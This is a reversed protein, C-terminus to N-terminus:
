MGIELMQLAKAAKGRLVQDAHLRREMRRVAETVAAANIGGTQAALEAHTLGCHRRALCLVLDRGWDGHRSVFSQWREAKVREVARRVEGLPLLGTVRRIRHKEGRLVKLKVKIKALFSAAGLVAGERVNEWPSRELGGRVAAEVYDRYTAQQAEVSSGGLKGLVTATDLWEPTSKRGAYARYSSWVYGRLETLRGRVQEETPRAVGREAVARQSKGLGHRRTRVPNLHVYRTLEGLWENEDVLVSKFRGQFLHGSRRHRRNFGMGYCVNLWQLARSLNAGPTRLVLHYHNEMLVYAGVVIDFRASAASVLDLFRRRDEDDRFIARRENGRATVHHWANEMEIRLPRAM